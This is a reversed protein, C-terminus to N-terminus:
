PRHRSTLRPRLDQQRSPVQGQPATRLRQELLDIEGDKAAVLDSEGAGVARPLRAQERGNAALERGVVAFDLAGGCQLNSM